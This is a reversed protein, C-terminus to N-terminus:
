NYFSLLKNNLDSLKMVKIENEWFVLVRWGKKRLEICRQTDIERGLPYNHWYTGFCEIITKKNIGEQIPILIDCQYAHEIEKMYQHTYFEIGLRGLLEQMKVEIKTDKVPFIQRSRREKIIKKYKNANKEGYLEEYSKGKKDSNQLGIKDKNWPNNEKKFCGKTPPGSYRQLPKIGKKKNTKSIKQKTRETVMSKKRIKYGNEKLRIRILRDSVKLQKSIDLISKEEKWHQINIEKLNLKIRKGKNHPINGKKFSGSNSETNVM